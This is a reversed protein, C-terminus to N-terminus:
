PLRQSFEPLSPAPPSQPAPHSRDCYRRSDRSRTLDFGAILFPRMARSKQNCRPFFFAGPQVQKGTLDVLGDKSAFYAALDEKDQESLTAVMPVMLPNTRKGSQYAKLANVMYDEYQGALRPYMPMIGNGDAGHCAQCTASKEEGASANGKAWTPTSLLLAAITVFLLNLKKM